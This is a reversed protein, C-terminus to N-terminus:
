SATEDDREEDHALWARLAEQYSDPTVDPNEWRSYTFSRDGGASIGHNQNPYKPFDCQGSSVLFAMQELEHVVDDLTHAQVRVELVYRMEPARAQALRERDTTMPM